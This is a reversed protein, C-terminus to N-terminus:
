SNIEFTKLIQGISKFLLLKDDYDGYRPVRITIGAKWYNGRKFWTDNLFLTDSIGIKGKKTEEILTSQVFIDKENTKKKLLMKSFPPINLPIDSYPLVICDFTNHMPEPDTEIIQILVDNISM